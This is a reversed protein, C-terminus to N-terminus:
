SSGEARDGALVQRVKLLGRRIHTKVTGLPLGTQAAIEEHSLGQYISLRLLQQQEDRLSALAKQALAAEDATSATHDVEPASCLIQEPLACSVPERTTRRRRDILRRRAIMTIFTSETAISQDYRAASKWVEVFIEQVADEADSTNAHFRKALSWVLSGYRALCERMASQDGRAIRPLLLDVTPREPLAMPITIALPGSRDSGGRRAVPPITSYTMHDNSALNLGLSNLVLM